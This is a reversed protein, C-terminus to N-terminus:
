PQDGARAQSTAMATGAASPTRIWRRTIARRRWAEDRTRTTAVRARNKRARATALSTQPSWPVGTREGSGSVGRSRKPVPLVTPSSRNHSMTMAMTTVATRAATYRHVRNPWAVSAAASFGIAAAASPYEGSRMAMTLQAAPPARAATAPTSTAGIRNRM